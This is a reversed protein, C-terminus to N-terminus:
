RSPVAPDGPPIRRSRAPEGIDATAVPSRQPARADHRDHGRVTSGDACARLARRALLSQLVSSRHLAMVDRWLPDGVTSGDAHPLLALLALLDQREQSRQLAM